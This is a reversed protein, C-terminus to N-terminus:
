QKKLAMQALKFYQNSNNRRETDKRLRINRMSLTNACKIGPMIDESGIEQYPKEEVSELVFGVIKQMVKEERQSNHTGTTEVFSVNGKAHQLIAKAHSINILEDEISHVLLVPCKV